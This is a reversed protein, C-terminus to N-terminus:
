RRGGGLSHGGDHFHGGDGDHWHGGGVPIDVVPEILPDWVPEIVPEEVIDREIIQGNPKEIIEERVPPNVICGGLLFLVAMLFIYRM